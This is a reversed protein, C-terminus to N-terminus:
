KLPNIDSRITEITEGESEDELPSLLKEELTQEGSNSGKSISEVLNARWEIAGIEICSKSSNEMADFGEVIIEVEAGYIDILRGADWTLSVLQGHTDEIETRGTETIVDGDECVKLNVEPFLSSDKTRKLRVLFEQKDEGVQLKDPPNPFEAKLFSKEDEGTAKVWTNTPRTPDDRVDEVSGTLNKMEIISVPELSEISSDDKIKEKDSGEELSEILGKEETKDSFVDDELSELLGKEEIKTEETASKQEPRETEQKKRSPKNEKVKKEMRQKQKQLAEDHKTENYLRKADICTRCIDLTIEQGAFNCDWNEVFICM